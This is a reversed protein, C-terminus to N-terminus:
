YDFFYIARRKNIFYLLARDWYFELLNLPKLLLYPGKLRDSEVYERKLSAHEHYVKIFKSPNLVRYGGKYFVFNLRGDCGLQGMKFNAAKLCDAVGKFVWVDQSDSEKERMLFGNKEHRTLSLMDGKKLFLYKLRDLTADFKIDNNAIINIGTKNLYSYFQSFNPREEILINNIKESLLIPHNFGENLIIIKDIYKNSVNNVLCDVIEIERSHESPHYLSIFLTVM